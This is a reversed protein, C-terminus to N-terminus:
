VNILQKRGNIYLFISEQELIRSVEKLVSTLTDLDTTTPDFYWVYHYDQYGEWSGHAIEVDGWYRARTQSETLEQIDALLRFSILKGNNFHRPILFFSLNTMPTEDSIVLHGKLLTYATNM